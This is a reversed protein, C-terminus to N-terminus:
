GACTCTICWSSSPMVVGEPTLYPAVAKRLDAEIAPRKAVGLEAAERVIEGAPGLSLQFDVAEDESRGVLMDVDVREFKPDVFGASRLQATVMEQDAMSFPGPGCKQGDDPPPPLHRRAVQKPIGTWPNDDITRWVIMMFRGGPKVAARLNRLAPVPLNFFMTGFRSFVFDYNAGFSHSAADCNLFEVNGVGAARADARGIELMPEVCDVGLVSGGPAVAGALQISTEGFGCGVDLVREGPRAPHRSLAARSHKDAGAVFIHRARKIKPYIIENWVRIADDNAGM